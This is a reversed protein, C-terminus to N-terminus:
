LYHFHKLLTAEYPLLTPAGKERWNKYQVLINGACEESINFLQSVKLSSLPTHYQLTPTPALIYQAFFNAEVEALDSHEMHDLTIHGIEHMITFRIRKPPMRDNYVITFFSYGDTDTSAFCFGDKSREMLIAITELDQDYYKKLRIGLKQCLRFCDYPLDNISWERIKSSVIKKIEEYRKYTLRFPINM